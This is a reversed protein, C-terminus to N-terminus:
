VQALVEHLLSGCTIRVVRSAERGKWQLGQVASALKAHLITKSNLTDWAGSTTCPAM